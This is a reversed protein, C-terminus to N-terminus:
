PSFHSLISNYTDVLENLFGFVLNKIDEWSATGKQKINELEQKIQLNKEHLLNLQSDFEVKAEGSLEVAKKEVVDLEQYIKSLTEDIKQQYEEKKEELLKKADENVQKNKEKLTELHKEVMNMSKGLHNELKKELEDIKLNLGELYEDLKAKFEKENQVMLDHAVEAMDKLEIRLDEETVSNQSTAAGAIASSFVSCVTIILIISTTILKKNQKM